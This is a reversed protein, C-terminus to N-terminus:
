RRELLRTQIHTPGYLDIVLSNISKFQQIPSSEQSDRANCPDFWDIRFSILGSYENSPSISFSFVGICQGGAAFLQSLPFAGSSPFSQPYSSFPIVSSSITPHCWRSLPCPNSYVGPCPLPCPLRTHQPGYPWLSDSVVSRSFPLLVWGKGEAESSCTNNGKIWLHASLLEPPPTAVTGALLSPRPEAGRAGASSQVATVFSLNGRREAPARRGREGLVCGEVAPISELYEQAHAIQAM